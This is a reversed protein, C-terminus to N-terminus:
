SRRGHYKRASRCRTESAGGPPRYLMIKSRGSRTTSCRIPCRGPRPCAIRQRPSETDRRKSRQTRHWPGDRDPRRSDVGAFRDSSCDRCRGAADGVARGTGRSESRSTHPKRNPSSDPRGGSGRSESWSKRPLRTDGTGPVRVSGGASPTDRNGHSSVQITNEHRGDGRGNTSGPDLGRVENVLEVKFNSRGATISSIGPM